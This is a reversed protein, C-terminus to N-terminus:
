IPQHNHVPVKEYRSDIAIFMYDPWMGLASVKFLTLVSSAANDFHFGHRVWERSKWRFEEVDFFIGVCEEM